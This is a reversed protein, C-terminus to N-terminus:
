QVAKQIAIRRLTNQQGPVHVWKLGKGLFFEGAELLMSALDDATLGAIKLYPGDFGYRLGELYQISEIMLAETGGAVQYYDHNTLRGPIVPGIGDKAYPLEVHQASMTLFEIIGDPSIRVETGVRSTTSARFLEKDVDSVEGINPGIIFGRAELQRARSDSLYFHETDSAFGIRQGPNQHIAIGILADLLVKQIGIKRYDVSTVSFTGEYLKVGANNLAASNILDARHVMGSFGALSGHLRCIAMIVNSGFQPQIAEESPRIGGFTGKLEPANDFVFSDYTDAGIEAIATTSDLVELQFSM